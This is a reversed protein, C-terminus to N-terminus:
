SSSALEALAKRLRIWCTAATLLTAGTFIWPWFLILRPSAITLLALASILVARDSKGMPGEYRRSGTLAQALVGCFETLIAGFCFTVVPWLAPRYILAWPVYLALDSLVDGLENLVAGLPTMLHFERAMM